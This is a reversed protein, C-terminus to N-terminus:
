CQLTVKRQQLHQQQAQLRAAHPEVQGGGVVQQEEVGGPVGGTLPLAEVPDVPEALGLLNENVLEDGVVRDLVPHSLNLIVLFIEDRPGEVHRFFLPPALPNTIDSSNESYLFGLLTVDVYSM